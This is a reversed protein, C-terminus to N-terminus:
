REIKDGEYCPIRHMVSSIHKTSPAYCERTTETVIIPEPQNYYGILYTILLIFVHVFYKISVDRNVM